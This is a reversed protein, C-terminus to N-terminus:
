AAGDAQSPHEEETQYLEWLNGYLVDRAQPDLPRAAAELRQRMDWLAGVVKCCTPGGRCFCTSM